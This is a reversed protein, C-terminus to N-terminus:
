GVSLFSVGLLKKFIKKPAMVAGLNLKIETTCMHSHDRPIYRSSEVIDHSSEM